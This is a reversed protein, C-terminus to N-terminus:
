NCTFSTFIRAGAYDAPTSPAFYLTLFQGSAAAATTASACSAAAGGATGTLTCGIGSNTVTDSHTPDTTSAIEILAQSTATTGIVTASFNQLTCAQPLPLLTSSNSSAQVV